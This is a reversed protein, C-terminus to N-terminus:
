RLHGRCTLAVGSRWPGSDPVTAGGGGGAHRMLTIGTDLRM